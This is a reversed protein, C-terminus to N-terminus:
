RLAPVHANATIDQFTKNMKDSPPQANKPSSLMTWISPASSPLDLLSLIEADAGTDMGTRGVLVTTLGKQHGAVINRTSDDLFITTNASAGGAQELALEIAKFSPKCVVPTGRHVFGKSEAADMISEYCIVGKFYEAIGMLRLCIEAHKRDGNTFVYVPLQIQQLLRILREDRKLYREYPLMHHVHKHWDDVDIKYGAAVLGAMTTGFNTYASLCLSTVEDQPVGLQERMYRQINERVLEPMEPVRYLCDDLDCLVTQLPSQPGM